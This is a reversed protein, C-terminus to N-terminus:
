IVSYTRKKEKREKKQQVFSLNVKKEAGGNGEGFPSGALVTNSAQVDVSAGNKNQSETAQTQQPVTQQMPPPMPDLELSEQHQHQQKQPRNIQSDFGSTSTSGAGGSSSGLIKKRYLADLEHFYPCTKADETRKKNSEKVKKFYKNINEWKEKCRKSSRKYGLRLMGASIEEWLPGKPGAEQYRTELGSRLKILALVEPKPWRSSAPESGGSGLELPAIQQEPVAMVIESSISPPQHQHHVQQHQQQQHHQQQPLQKNQQPTVQSLPM